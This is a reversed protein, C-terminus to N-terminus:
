QPPMRSVGARACRQRYEADERQSTRCQEQCPGVSAQGNYAAMQTCTPVCLAGATARALGAHSAAQASARRSAREAECQQRLVAQESVAAEAAHAEEQQRVEAEAGTTLRQQFRAAEADDPYLASFRAVDAQSLGRGARGIRRAAEARLRERDAPAVLEIFTLLDSAEDSALAHREAAGLVEHTLRQGDECAGLRTAIWATEASRHDDDTARLARTALACTEPAIPGGASLAADLVPHAEFSWGAELSRNVLATARAIREAEQPTGDFCEGAAAGLLFSVQEVPPLGNVLGWAAHSANDAEPTGPVRERFHCLQALRDRDSLLTSFQRLEAERGHSAVHDALAVASPTGAGEDALALLTRRADDDSLERADAQSRTEAALDALREGLRRYSRAVESRVHAQDGRVDDTALIGDTWAAVALPAGENATTGLQEVWFGLHFRCLELVEPSHGGRECGADLATAWELAASAVGRGKPVATGVARAASPVSASCAGTACVPGLSAGCGATCAAVILLTTLEVGRRHRANM